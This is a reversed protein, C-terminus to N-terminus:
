DECHKEMWQHVCKTCKLREASNRAYQLAEWLLHFFEFKKKIRHFYFVLVIRVYGTLISPDSKKKCAYTIDNKLFEKLKIKWFDGMWIIKKKRSGGESCTNIIKRAGDFHCRCQPAHGTMICPKMIGLTGQWTLVSIIICQNILHFAEAHYKYLDAGSKQSTHRWGQSIDCVPCSQGTGSYHVAVTCLNSALIELYLFILSGASEGSEVYPCHLHMETNRNCHHPFHGPFPEAVPPYISVSHSLQPCYAATLILATFHKNRAFTCTVKWHTLSCEETNPSRGERKFCRKCIATVNIYHLHITTRSICCKQKRTGLFSIPSLGWFHSLPLCTKCHQLSKTCFNSWLM